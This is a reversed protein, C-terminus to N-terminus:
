EAGVFRAWIIPRGNGLAGRGFWQPRAKSVIGKGSSCCEITLSLTVDRVVWVHGATRKGNHTKGPYVGICGLEPAEIQRWRQHPGKHADDYIHDTNYGIKTQGEKRQGCVRAAFASCDCGLPTGNFDGGMQYVIKGGYQALLAEANALVELSNSPKAHPITLQM